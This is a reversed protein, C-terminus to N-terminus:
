GLKGSAILDSIAPAVKAHELDHVAAEIEKASKGLIDIASQYLVEGEDIGNTVRHLSLGSQTVGSRAVAEHVHHGWMGDGGFEPLLAPHLNLIRHQYAEVIDAPIRLLFGLLLVIDVKLDSLLKTVEGNNLQSKTFVEVPVDLLQARAIVGAQPNNTLIMVVEAVKNALLYKTVTEANSGSGSAFIAVRKM